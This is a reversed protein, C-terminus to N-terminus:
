CLTDKKVTFYNTIPNKSRISDAIKPDRIFRSNRPDNEIWRAIRKMKESQESGELLNGFWLESPFVFKPHHLLQKIMKVDEYELAYRMCANDKSSPNVRDDKLVERLCKDEDVKICMNVLDLKSPDFRSDRLMVKVMKANGHIIALELCRDSCMIDDETKLLIKLTSVKQKLCSHLIKKNFLNYKKFM